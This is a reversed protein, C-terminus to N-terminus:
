APRVALLPGRKPNWLAAVVNKSWLEFRPQYSPNYVVLEDGYTGLVVVSHLSDVSDWGVPLVITYGRQLYTYIDRVTAERPERKYRSGPQELGHQQYLTAQRSTNKYIRENNQTLYSKFQNWLRKGYYSQAYALGEALFRKYNWASLEVQEFGSKWLGIVFDSELTGTALSLNVLRAAEYENQTDSM